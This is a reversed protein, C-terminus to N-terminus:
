GVGDELLFPEGYGPGSFDKGALEEGAAEEGGVEDEPAGLLAEVAPAVEADV